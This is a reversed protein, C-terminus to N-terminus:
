EQAGIMEKVINNLYYEMEPYDSVIIEAFDKIAEAKIKDECWHCSTGGSAIEARISAEATEYQKDREGELREIEANQRKILGLAETMCESKCEITGAAGSNFPCKSCESYGICCELAKIIEKDKM